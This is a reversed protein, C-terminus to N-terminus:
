RIQGRSRDGLRKTLQKVRSNFRSVPRTVPDVYKDKLDPLTWGPKNKTAPFRKDFREWEDQQAQMKARARPDSMDRPGSLVGHAREQDFLRKDRAQNATMPREGKLRSWARSISSKFRDGFSTDRDRARGRLFPAELLEQSAACGGGGGSTHEQTPAVDIDRFDVLDGVPQDHQDLRRGRWTGAHDGAQTVRVRTGKVQVIQGVHPTNHQTTTTNM